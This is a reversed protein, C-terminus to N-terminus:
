AVFAAIVSGVLAAIALVVGVTRARTNPAAPRLALAAMALVPPAGSWFVPLTLLSLVGLVVIRRSTAGTALAPRVVLVFVLGTLIAIFVVLAPFADVQDQKRDHGFVGIATLATAIAFAAIGIPLASGWRREGAFQTEFAPATQSM